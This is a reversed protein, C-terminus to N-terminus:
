GDTPRVPCCSEHVLALRTMLDDADEDDLRRLVRQVQSAVLGREVAFRTSVKRYLTWAERNDADLGDWQRRVECTDCDFAQPDTEVTEADTHLCCPTLRGDDM